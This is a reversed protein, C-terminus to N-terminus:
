HVVTKTENKVKSTEISNVKIIIHEFDPNFDMGCVYARVLSGMTDEVEQQTGHFTGIIQVPFTFMHQGDGWVIYEGTDEPYHKEVYDDIWFTTYTYLLRRSLKKFFSKSVKNKFRKNASGSVTTVTSGKGTTTIPLPTSKKVTLAVGEFTVPNNLNISMLTHEPVEKLDDIKLRNRGAAAFIFGPESAWVYGDPIKAIWLPREKNRLLYLTEKEQDVWQCAYAGEVESLADELKTKDHAIPCIFNALAESDVEFEGGLKKHNRLTGNHMFFFNEKVIFPHATEVSIKGVTAKRNHGLAVRGNRFLGKTLSDFDDSGYEKYLMLASAECAEKLIEVDGHNNVAIIGTSDQGRLQDMHLLDTFCDQELSSFGHKSKTIVGVLGCM